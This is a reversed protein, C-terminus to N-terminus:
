RGGDIVLETQESFLWAVIRDIVVEPPLRHKGKLACERITATRWGAASLASLNAADRAVNRGIKERWFDERTKPWVFLACQHGHWFCGNVFLVARHKAFVLDPRGPLDRAHLRYRIGRAHLAKRILLEPKTGAGRIAAMNRSRTAQDHVDALLARPSPIAPM